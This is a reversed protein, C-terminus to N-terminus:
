DSTFFDYYHGALRHMTPPIRVATVGTPSGSYPWFGPKYPGVGDTEDYIVYCFSATTVFASQDQYDVVIKLPEHKTQRARAFNVEQDYKPLRVYFAFVNEGQGILSACGVVSAAMVVAAVISFAHRFRRQVLDYCFWAFISILALLVIGILPLLLLPSVQVLLVLAIACGASAAVLIPSWFDKAVRKTLM